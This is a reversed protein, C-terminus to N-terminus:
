AHKLANNNVAIVAHPQSFLQWGIIWQYEQM